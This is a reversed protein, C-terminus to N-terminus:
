RAGTGRSSSEPNVWAELTLGTTLDLSNSDPVTVQSTRGNFSLATGFRGMAAWTTSTTTGHNGTGSADSVGTGTGENFGFAAVPNPSAQAPAAMLM